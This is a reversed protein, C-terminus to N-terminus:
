ALSFGLIDIKYVISSWRSFWVLCSLTLFSVSNGSLVSFLVLQFVQSPFCLKHNGSKWVFWIFFIVLFVFINSFGSRRQLRTYPNLIKYLFKVTSLSTIVERTVIKFLSNLNILNLILRNTKSLFILIGWFHSRRKTTMLTFKSWFIVSKKEKYQSM